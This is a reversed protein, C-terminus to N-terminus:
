EGEKSKISLVYILERIKTSLISTFDYIPSLLSSLIQGYLAEKSSLNALFDFRESPFVEGEIYAGKVKIPIKEEVKKILKAPIVPDEKSFVLATPGKFVKKLTEVTESKEFSRLALRNKVVEIEVKMERAQQRFDTFDSAKINEFNCFYLGKAGSIKGQLEKVREEKRKEMM